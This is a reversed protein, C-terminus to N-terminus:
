RALLQERARQLGVVIAGRLSTDEGVTGHKVPVAVPALKNVTRQVLPLLAPHGGVPGGLIVLQPDITACVAAVAEGVARGERELLELAETNGREARAFVAEALRFVQRAQVGRGRSAFGRAAAVRALSHRGHGTDVTPGVPLYGIEGALGRAGHVLSGNLVIGMGLGAGIYVYVFNDVSRGAGLIQEAIAALNVDNDVILPAEFLGALVRGPTIVGEPYPTDPLPVVAGSAPDVPNAISISVARLPHGLRAGRVMAEKVGRRLGSAVGQVDRPPPYTLSAISRGFLDTAAVRLGAAGLDAAIIFGADSALEYFTGSRGPRGEQRDGAVLLGAKELRRVAENITAKSIGTQRAIEARTVASQVFVVDLVSEDTLGRLVDPRPM